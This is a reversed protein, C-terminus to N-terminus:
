SRAFDSLIVQVPDEGEAIRQLQEETLKGYDINEVVTRQRRGGVEKAIDDLAARYEALLAANFREIEVTEGFEGSGIRKFDKVWVRPRQGDEAGEAIQSELFDVLEKLKAVREYDLAVGSQMIEKRRAAALATKEADIAADYAEARAQWNFKSSWKALTGLSRTPPSKRADDNYREELARLSRSPGMRVYDNCALIANKGEGPMREGAVLEVAM